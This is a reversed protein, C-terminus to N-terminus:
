KKVQEDRKKQKKTTVNRKAFFLKESECVEFLIFAVEAANTGVHYLCGAAAAAAAGAAGAAATEV